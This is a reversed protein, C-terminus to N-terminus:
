SEARWYLFEESSDPLYVINEIESGDPVLVISCGEATEGPGVTEPTGPCQEFPDGGFDLVTLSLILNGDDDEANPEPPTVPQDGVNTFETHVYYPTAAAEDDDLTFGHEVLDDSDGKEVDTIAVSGSSVKDGSALDYFDVDKSTGLEMAEESCASMALLATVSLVTAALTRM